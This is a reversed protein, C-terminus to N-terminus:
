TEQRWIRLWLAFFGLRLYYKGEKKEIIQNESLEALVRASLEEPIRLESYDIDDVIMRLADIANQPASFDILYSFYAELDPNTILREAMTYVETVGITDFKIEEKLWARTIEGCMMQTFSPHGGTLRWMFEEALSSYRFPITEWTLLSNWDERDLLNIRKPSAGKLKDRFDRLIGTTFIISLGKGSRVLADLFNEITELDETPFLREDGGIVREVFIDADDFILVLSEGRQVLVEQLYIISDTFDLNSIQKEFSKM